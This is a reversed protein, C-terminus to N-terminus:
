PTKIVRRKAETTFYSRIIIHNHIIYQSLIFWSMWLFLDM